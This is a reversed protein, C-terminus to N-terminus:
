YAMAAPEGAAVADARLGFTLQVGPWFADAAVAGLYALAPAPLGVALAGVSLVLVPVALGFGFMGVGVAAIGLATATTACAIGPSAGVFAVLADRNEHQVGWMVGAAACASGVCPAALLALLIGGASGVAALAPKVGTWEGAAARNYLLAMFGGNAGIIALPVGVGVGLGIAGQRVASWGDTVDDAGDPATGDPVAGDPVAAAAGGWMVMLACLTSLQGM